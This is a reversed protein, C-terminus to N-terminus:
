VDKKRQISLVDYGADNITKTIQDDGVSAGDKTQITVLKKDLDVKVDKIDENKSFTKKIGQACFSCVMGKVTVTIEEAIASAPILTSAFILLAIRQRKMNRRM